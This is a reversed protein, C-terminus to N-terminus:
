EGSGIQKMGGNGKQTQQFVSLVFSTIDDKTPQAPLNKMAVTIREILTQGMQEEMISRIPVPVPATLAEPCYRRLFREAEEERQEDM